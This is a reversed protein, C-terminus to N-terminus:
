RASGGELATTIMAQWLMRVHEIRGERTDDFGEPLVFDSHGEADALMTSAPELMATLAARALDRYSSAYTDAEGIAVAVRELMTPTETM